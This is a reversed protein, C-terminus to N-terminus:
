GPQRHEAPLKSGLLRSADRLVPLRDRVEKVYGPNVEGEVYGPEAGLQLRVLGMPDVLMSRGAFRPGPLDAVALYVTNELARCRASCVLHEEKLPGQYWASPAALLLAGQLALMRAIEPFRLEYCILVGVRLGDVDVLRDELSGRCLVDSEKVGLADFLMAKRAVVRYGGNPEFLAVSSYRCDGREEVIGALIAVSLRESLKGLFGTWDRGQRGPLGGSYEPLIVLRADRVRSALKEVKERDGPPAQLLGITITKM